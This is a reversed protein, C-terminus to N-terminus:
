PAGTCVIKYRDRDDDGSIGRLKKEIWKEADEQSSSKNFLVWEDAGLFFKRLHDKPKYYVHWIKDPGKKKKGRNLNEKQPTVGQRIDKLASQEAKARPDSM